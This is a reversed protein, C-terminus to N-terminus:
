IYAEQDVYLDQGHTIEVSKPEDVQRQSLNEVMRDILQDFRIRMREAAAHEDDQDLYTAYAGYKLYHHYKDPLAPEDTDDDMETPTYVYWVKINNSTTEDPIPMFGINSGIVYYRANSWTFGQGSDTRAQIPIYNINPMPLVRHWENDIQINVMLIKEFDSPLAYEQQSTVSSTTASKTFFDPIAKGVEDVMQMYADNVWVGLSSDDVECGPGILKKLDAIIQAKTM